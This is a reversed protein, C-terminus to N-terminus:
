QGHQQQQWLKYGIEYDRVNRKPIFRYVPSMPEHFESEQVLAYAAAVATTFVRPIKANAAGLGVVINTFDKYEGYFIQEGKDTLRRQFDFPGNYGFKFFSSVPHKAFQEQVEKINAIAPGFVAKGDPGYVPKHDPGILM